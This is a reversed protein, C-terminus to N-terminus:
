AFLIIFFVFVFVANVLLGNCRDMVGGHGPILQSFDKVVARRKFLSSFLDGGMNFLGCFLGGLLFTWVSIQLSNFLDSYGGFCNFITFVVVSAVMAGVIGGIFGTWSKGPGLKELNIKPGKIFRGTLMAFTDAFMSSAFLLVLGMLGLDVGSNIYYNATESIGLQTFHNIIFAFSFLFTPWLCVFITNMSKSFSYYGLSGIFGERVKMKNGLKSFILPFAFLAIFYLVLIGLNILIFHYFNLNTNASIVIMAFCLIPYLGIPTTWTPRDMKHLLNEVEFACFVMIVGILLDFVYESLERLFFCGVLAVLIIAGSIIRPWWKAPTNISKKNEM